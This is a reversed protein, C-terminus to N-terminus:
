YNSWSYMYMVTGGNLYTGATPCSGATGFVKVTTNGAQAIAALMMIEPDTTYYYYLQPMAKTARGIYIYAYPTAVDVRTYVYVVKGIYACAANSISTGVFMVACAVLGVIVLKTRM